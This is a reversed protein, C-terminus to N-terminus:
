ETTKKAVLRLFRRKRGLAEVDETEAHMVVFGAAALGGLIEGQTAVPHHPQSSSFLEAREALTTAALELFPQLLLAQSRAAEAM